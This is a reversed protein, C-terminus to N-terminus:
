KWLHLTQRPSKILFYRGYRVMKGFRNLSEEYQTLIDYGKQRLDLIRASLRTIGYLSFADMSTISKHKAFHMLLQKEQTELNEM